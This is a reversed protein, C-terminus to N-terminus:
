SADKPALQEQLHEAAMAPTPHDFLLAAPLQLGTAANLRNRLEVATLSDFGIEFLPDDPGVADSTAHGLVAAAEARVFATLHQLRQAPDLAALQESLPPATATRPTTHATPRHHSQALTRLLPPLTHSAASNRLATRDLKLPILHPQHTTLATDLLRMGDADTLPIVGSHRTRQQHTTSMGATLASTTEWLGWALSTAPLGAAHRQQALADAYTNAAAYNAQGPTGLAGTASSYIVFAALDHDRTLDHLHTIADVKPRFVTGLREPTLDTLLADDLAGATHIVATLPQDAPIDALVTALQDRDAADCAAIRIRAGLRTLEASLRDAGPADTGQRSVLLLNRAKHHTILHRATLAGLTGTGGTILVTGEPALTLPEPTPTAAPALHPTYATADRLALQPQDTATLATPLTHHSHEDIDILQIRGPHESQASRVLGWVAAAAPDTVEATDHVAMAGRTLIVLRTGALEPRDVWQRLLDLVRACLAHARDIPPGTNEPAWASVDAVLAAPREGAAAVVQSVDAYHPPSDPLRSEGVPKGLTAWQAETTGDLGCEAWEVAWLGNGGPAASLARLQEPTTERLQLSGITAVPLGHPDTIQVCLGDAGSATARVRVATAGVAHLRVDTWAFPLMTPRDGGSEFCFNGAHLTADLLAPHIGFRGAVATQDEPVAVEAFVEDDRKWVASLGRFAPGYEYGAEALQEYFGELAVPEAGEPPWPHATTAAATATGGTLLTGTAHETWQRIGEPRSYVGVKRRGGEDGEEGGVLVQVHLTGEDPVAMPRSIVLEELVRAEAEDGARVALEVMATGPLLITGSVAHDALWPHTRLSLRGTLLVGDTDPVSVVAGVLPHGTDELGVARVDGPGSRDLWFTEQQFPYTPLPIRTPHTGTFLTPWNVPTGHTTLHALNTLLRTPTDDDRRLTGTITTNSTDNAELTEQIATTLVPHPSVEIFTRYSQDALTTIATHFQVTQRLNRYWYNGDITNPEIWQGTVTSLWPITGPEFTVNDLAHHLQDKITDVHGTHSAYDVPIIRARIGQDTYRAHLEHLAEADGAVVTASPSNHAAIWLKGHWNSLDITDAPTALSMMGGHGALHDAIIQSRLAVVKAAADLTLHGAVCAAAIEGQSHGIVADPHIGMSQWLAALSVVVAFTAPQVVDVRDLSPADPAGTIVDVLSWDTYPALADACERLRTAFVPSTNLLQAGMGVWQAGQGPFVFVTKGDTRTQGTVLLPDPRGEALARATAIGDETDTALIVARHELTARTTALSWGVDVARPTEGSELHSVLREAQARLAAPSKASLVWPVVGGTAVLGPAGAEAEPVAVEPPGQELVVHANTGSVGFSSIGARRPRGTEPWPRAESLLSVAGSAWDVQTTPREAHLTKPLTNHRMALVMKIVGAVGAAAQAHGINSKLSGLWLPQGEPREQGYTALLAQAEIPDGLSTGTGHAEVADVDAVTLGANALAQQIVREQSPGNPATLGNSAGDQNVATGRVVALVEHGNRRADSLRELLVLGVGESWNTGDAGEAFSKCRGDPALGRQRSFEIFSTPRSMVAVGGALALSCEGTRVAQVALHLAVLSSSCATDVTVAPGTLGMAYAVRGSVVSGASGVGLHGELGEAATGADAGYDHYMVGSFVGVDTGHLSGPDIGANEFTEWATELLLRQQPDMALAERPSIGFFAADFGGAGTLFGGERVYSKGVADPDSDFLGALDWGRDEPFGAIADRGDAVLRWLDEPTAVEGPLHCGMAVIAVPEDSVGRARAPARVSRKGTIERVLHRALGAPTPHDFVVTAALRAGTAANLRNRLAVATLSTFGFASFAQDAEVPDASALGLAAAAHERVLALAMRRRGSESEAALRRRFEAAAPEDSAPVVSPADVLHRLVAPVPEGGAPGTTSPRLLVLPGQGATLAADFLALAEPLPVAGAVPATGQEGPLPGWALALGSLGLARRRRVLAEGFQDAAARDPRGPSGLVGAASTVVVFLTPEATRTREELHTMGRLSTALSREPGPEEIHVAATVPRDQADLVSDLAARDAPDCVAMSVQAGDRALETRLAAAAEEPLGNASLLLLNRAGYATVLHRALATGRATDGGTIVVLGDPDLAPAPGPEAPVSIRTLRPVLLVGGRIAAQDHGDRVARLLAAVRGDERVGVGAGAGGGGGNVDVDVDVDVLTLRGPYAAQLSRVVGWLTASLPEPANEESGTAVAGMTAVVFTTGALRDDALWTGLRAALRDVGEDVTAEAEDPVGAEEPRGVVQPAVVVVDPAAGDDGAVDAVYGAVPDSVPDSLDVGAARLGEALGVGVGLADADALAWTGTGAPADPLASQPVWDLRLLSDYQGDGAARLRAPLELLVHRTIKGSATRPVRAIEYIEEPVKFYSLRERCTALLAAPDFGDPGPVVFAVPVEGLVAHPKGVVAADAVGPVTRLVAEVEGPHINEGARIVLEKIRGTVTCFGAEDRRGLDGTRYWGDRLAAATAEPQNHYGAMINPGSVWFEGERGAPVDVGSDPDVLRVTLGPVPLGCSGEVRPGTPWNVAIAGCTETSGYADVLPVGFTAEFSRVLDATAVAGGVLAIRLEPTALDRERAAEILHHYLTPVGAIFTSREERLADLVDSTSVGDVIRTRAGVATAALLCVIHSLSHFLPLPWLVRDEATLGTVPVYCAALSWLCNRQTSLVGKPLGTTGSTYLMWAVEDLGLDDRAALDPETDPLPEFAIFGKPLPGDGSVVVRLEPFRERLRDFQDAHAVDTLVLRAGSDALLYSLEADTSRPNVPVAVGNARLVGFYSEVTEVRNGLCIMARDGPHLRLGALHGALRRTRRELEAHSVTRHGDSCAPKDGFRDANARLLEPVPRILDTRLM